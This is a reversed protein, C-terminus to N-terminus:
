LGPLFLPPAFKHDNEQMTEMNQLLAEYSVTTDAEQEVAHNDLASLISYFNHHQFVSRTFRKFKLVNKINSCVSGKVGCFQIMVADTQEVM